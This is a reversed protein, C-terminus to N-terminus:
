AAEPMAQGDSVHGSRINARGELTAYAEATMLHRLMPLASRHVYYTEGSPNAAAALLDLIMNPDAELRALRRAAAARVEPHLDTLRIPLSRSPSREELM